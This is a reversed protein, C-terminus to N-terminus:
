VSSYDFLYYDLTSTSKHRSECWNADLDTRLGGKEVEIYIRAQPALVHSQVLWQLAAGVLGRGFPPDLFVLNFPAALTMADLAQYDNQIIHVNSTTALLQSNARLAQCVDVAVDIFTVEMAGRSLAEFGLAGSGAFLDLCRAGVVDHMLWNFLTERVRDHTPRLGTIQPFSLRRGRWKGGIIRLSGTSAKKM